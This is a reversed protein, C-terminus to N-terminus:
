GTQPIKNDYGSHVLYLIIFFRGTICSVQTRSSPWSSGRSFLIAIWELIRAQLIGHVSSGPPSCDMPNHLTPCSQTALMSFHMFFSWHVSNWFSNNILSHFAVAVKMGPSLCTTQINSGQCLHYPKVSDLPFRGLRLLSYPSKSNSHPNFNPLIGFAVVFWTAWCKDATDAMKLNKSLFCCQLHTHSAYLFQANISQWIQTWLHVM